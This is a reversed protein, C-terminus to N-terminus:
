EPLQPLRKFCFCHSKGGKEYCLFVSGCELSLAICDGFGNCECFLVGCNFNRATATSFTGSPPFGFNIARLDSATGIQFKSSTIELKRVVDSLAIEGNPTRIRVRNAVSATVTYTRGNRTLDIVYPKGRPQRAITQTTVVVSKPSQPQSHVLTLAILSLAAVSVLRIRKM